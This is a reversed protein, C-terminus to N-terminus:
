GEVDYVSDKKAELATRCVHSAREYRTKVAYLKTRLASLSRRHSKITKRQLFRMFLLLGGDVLSEEAEIVLGGNLVFDVLDMAAVVSWVEPAPTEDHIKVNSLYKVAERRRAIISAEDECSIKPIMKAIEAPSIKKPKVDDPIPLLHRIAVASAAALVRQLEKERSTVSPLWRVVRAYAAMNEHENETAAAQEMAVDLLYRVAKAKFTDWSKAPVSAILAAAANELVTDLARARSDLEIGACMQLIRACGDLNSFPEVGRAFANDCLATVLELVVFLEHRLVGKSVASKTSTKTENATSVSSISARKPHVYDRVGLDRMADCVTSACLEWAPAAFTKLEASSASKGYDFRPGDGDHIAGWMCEFGLAHMFADRAALSLEGCGCTTIVDWLWEMTEEDCRESTTADWRDPLWRELLLARWMEDERASPVLEKGKRVVARLRKSACPPLKAESASATGDRRASFANAGLTEVHERLRFGEGFADLAADHEDLVRLAEEEERQAERMAAEADEARRREFLADDARRRELAAAERAGEAANTAHEAFLWELSWKKTADGSGDGKRGGGRRRPTAARGGTGSASDLGRARLATAFGFEDDSAEGDSGITSARASAASGGSTKKGRASGSTQRGRASTKLRKKAGSEVGRADARPSLALDLDDGGVDVDESADSDSRADALARM